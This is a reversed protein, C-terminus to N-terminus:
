ESKGRLRHVFAHLKWTRSAYIGDLLANLRAVERIYADLSKDREAVITQLASASANLQEIMGLSGALAADVGRKEDALAAYDNAMAAIKAADDRIHAILQRKDRELRSVDQELHSARGSEELATQSVKLLRLKQASFADAVERETILARHKAWVQLKADRFRDADANLIVSSSGEFHRIECTVRPIRQLDRTRSLRILFDWDEFLDFAPDFGGAALYDDRRVLLTPLPIYNDFLLLNRDFDTEYLRLRKTARYTGDEGRAMFASVADTYWARPEGSSAAAALTPLHEPYYIDDDDLFAVFPTRAAAVGRNMAESRGLPKAHEVIQLRGADGLANRPSEGGDNVVVIDAPYGGSRVSAVADQLWSPRNQTRIVVTVPVTARTVEVAPAGISAAELASYPRTRLDAIPVVWYGEAATVPRDLTMARFQNLGRAFGAYDRQDNQSEHAAIAAAKADAVATIDVLTNPLLPRGVEYFAVRCMALSAAIAADRQVLDVVAGALARHDPHIEAPGPVLLLDPRFDLLERRLADILQEGTGALGRDPFGLFRPSAVGLAALAKTSEAARLEAAGPQSANGVGAAGDTAIVVRIDRKEAAHLALLGGCGIVEDDPHPALVLLREGRLDSPAYPILQQEVPDM